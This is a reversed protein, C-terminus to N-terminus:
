ITQKNIKIGGLTVMYTRFLRFAYFVPERVPQPYRPDKAFLSDHNKDCYTNYEDITERLVSPEIGIKSALEDLSSTM